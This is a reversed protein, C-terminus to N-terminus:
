SCTGAILRKDLMLLQMSGDALLIFRLLIKLLLHLTKM